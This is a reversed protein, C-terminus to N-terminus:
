RITSQTRVPSKWPESRFKRPQASFGSSTAWAPLDAAEKLNSARRSDAADAGSGQEGNQSATRNNAPNPNMSSAESIVLRQVPSIGPHPGAGTGSATTAGPVESPPGAIESFSGISQGKANREGPRGYYVIADAQRDVRAQELAHGSPSGMPAILSSSLPPGPNGVESPGHGVDSRLTGMALHTPVGITQTATSAQLAHLDITEVQARAPVGVNQIGADSIGADPNGADPNHPLLQGHSRLPQTREAELFSALSVAQRELDEATLNLEATSNEPLTPARSLPTLTQLAQPQAELRPAAVNPNSLLASPTLGNEPFAQGSPKGDHPADLEGAIGLEGVGPLLKRAPESIVTGGQVGEFRTILSIQRSPGGVVDWPLWVSYSDGLPCRSFHKELQEPGFVFKKEPKRSQNHGEDAFAYITLTGKAKMPDQGNEGYFLIRGGFGRQAAEDKKHLVADSWIALIRSPVEDQESKSKPM